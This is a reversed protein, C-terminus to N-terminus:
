SKEPLTQESCQTEESIPQMLSYATASCKRTEEVQVKILQVGTGELQKPGIIYLLVHAIIEATPNFPVVVVTSDLLQLAAARPDEQWILFRHDWEEELWLCLKEKICSFDIVRGISDLKAACTFHVRYNHGHLHICKGEHGTVTHGCSFDHYRTCTIM